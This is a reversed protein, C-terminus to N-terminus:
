TVEVSLKNEKKTNPAIKKLQNCENKLGIYSKNLNVLENKFYDNEVKLKRIEAGPEISRGKSTMPKLKPSLPSKSPKIPKLQKLIEKFKQEKSMKKNLYM